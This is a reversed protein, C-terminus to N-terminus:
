TPSDVLIFNLVGAYFDFERKTSNTNKRNYQVIKHVFINFKISFFKDIRNGNIFSSAQNNIVNM